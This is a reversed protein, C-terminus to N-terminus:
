TCLSTVNEEELCPTCSISHGDCCKPINGKMGGDNLDFKEVKNKETIKQEAKEGQWRKLDAIIGLRPSKEIQSENASSIPENDLSNVSKVNIQSELDSVNIQDDRQLSVIKCHETVKNFSARVQEQKEDYSAVM